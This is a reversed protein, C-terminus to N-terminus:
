EFYSPEKKDEFFHEVDDIDYTVCCEPLANLVCERYVGDNSVRSDLIAVVGSDRETRILRGFGQKLKILMEPMIVTNLYEHFSPYLTQEYESISDPVAFPLKVIILMSLIDGPIDIGEWMAGSAFLVGNGSQKFREIERVGGKDLRFLPFPIGRQHLKAYVLGMTNYSTFLVAAHGNSAYILQEIEDTLADIYAKSQQDPFPVNESLYLLTNDRHNFPSPKSTETLRRNTVHEIGITRKIHSFDGAASLTGSTLVMPVGKSWLDEYLRKDLNKPIACLSVTSNDSTDLWYILEDYKTLTATQKHVQSLEWLIQAKRGEGKGSVPEPTLMEILDASMNRINRLHRHAEEDIDASLREAEDNIECHQTHEILRKFMRHSESSLKRATKRALKQAEEYKLNLEFVNDKIEELTEFSFEVGYM